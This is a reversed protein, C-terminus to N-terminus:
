ANVRERSVVTHRAVLAVAFVSMAVLLMAGPAAILAVAAAALALAVTARDPNERLADLALVVFLATLVFDIGPVESLFASGAAAGIVSGLIWSAYLGTQTTLIKRSSLESSPTTSILAYAEDTLTYVSYAKAFRGHVRHLPFTLGYFLHRSNVLATTVGIAALPSAAALMGALLFEVSGAYVIVSLMPSVWWPLGNSTVVIGLGTGLVLMGLCVVATRSPARM